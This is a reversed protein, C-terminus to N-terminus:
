FRIARPGGPAGAGGAAEGTVVREGANLGELVQVNANTNLGVRIKRPQANGGQDLVRVAYRGDQDRKGLATAPILVAHKAEGLVINVQATMSIRLKGDANPMDLLGNYYIASATTGASANSSSTEDQLISDPAPEIARLTTYYRRDPEGLITFFVKQGAKVRTVDAESIQTKITVTDMRALKIITPTAQNSNVTQGQQAVLAVVVGDIPALIRTYGLNAKATDVAITNKDIQAVLATVNARSSEMAAEAQEYSERSSADQAYMTQQRKFALEKQQADARAANLQARTDVLDAEAAHLANRQTVSDIEAIPQNQKVHDGLTVHLAKIQGSVQAGVSVQRLAKVTGTALVTDQLDGIVAPSSLYAPAAHSLFFYIKAGAAAVMLVAAVLSYKLLKKKPPM